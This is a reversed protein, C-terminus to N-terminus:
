AARITLGKTEHEKILHRLRWTALQDAHQAAAGNARAEQLVHKQVSNGNASRYARLQAILELVEDHTHVTPDITTRVEHSVGSQLVIDLSEYATKGSVKVGTVQAYKEKLHKIDLGVWDILSELNQSGREPAASHRPSTGSELPAASHRPTADVGLLAALRKPWAGGTHLGIAFGMARVAKVADPLAADILPEGGSFVVGDLLGRRRELFKVVECWPMIGPAKPDLIADNHCYVCRWPCGQLFIVAALKGPWDTTSM